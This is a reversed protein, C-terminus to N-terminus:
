KHTSRVVIERVERPLSRMAYTLGRVIAWQEPPLYVRRRNQSQSRPHEEERRYEQRQGYRRDRSRAPSRGRRNRPHYPSPSRASFQRRYHGDNRRSDYGSRLNSRSRSRYRASSGYDSRRPRFDVDRQRSRERGRVPSRGRRDDQWRVRRENMTAEVPRESEQVVPPTSPITVMVRGESQLPSSKKPKKGRMWEGKQRKWALRCRPCRCVTVGKRGCNKCFPVDVPVTCEAHVHGMRHCKFCAGIEPDVGETWPVLVLSGFYCGVIKRAKEINAEYKKWAADEVRQARETNVAANGAVQSPETEMLLQEEMEESIDLGSLSIDELGIEEELVPGEARSGEVSGKGAGVGPLVPIEVPAQPQPLFQALTPLPRAQLQELRAKRVRWKQNRTLKIPVEIWFPDENSDDWTGPNNAGIMKEPISVYMLHQGDIGTEGPQGGRVTVESGAVETVVKRSVMVGENALQKRVSQAPIRGLTVMREPRANAAMKEQARIQAASKQLAAAYSMRLAIEVNPYISDLKNNKIWKLLETPTFKQKSIENASCQAKFHICEKVFNLDLDDPCNEILHNAKVQIEDNNIQQLKVLFEFKSAFEAYSTRRGTLEVILGELICYYINIRFHDRSTFSHAKTASDDFHVKQKKIRKLDKDYEKNESILLAQNEFNNFSEESRIDNLLQILGDYLMVVSSIDINPDQLKKSVGNIRQLLFEWVCLFLATELTRLQKLIGEAQM